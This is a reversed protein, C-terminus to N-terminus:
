PLILQDRMMRSNTMYAAEPNSQKQISEASVMEHDEAATKRQNKTNKM